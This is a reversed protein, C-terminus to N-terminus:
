TCRVAAWATPPGPTTPGRTSGTRGWGGLHPEDWPLPMFFNRRSVAIEDHTFDDKDYAPGKELLVVKLGARALQLAMPAGGAGSGVVVADVESLAM